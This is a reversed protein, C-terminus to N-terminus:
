HSLLFADLESSAPGSRAGHKSVCIAAAANAYRIAQDDQLGHLKAAIFAGDFVDGAGVTDAVDIHFAPVHIRQDKHYLVAGQDGYRAIVTTGNSALSVAATEADHQNTLLPIEDIASGFIVTVYQKSAQLNHYFFSDGISEVRANIDLSVPVGAKSCRKMLELQTSAAPDERFMM